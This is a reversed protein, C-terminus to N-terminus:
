FGKVKTTIGKSKQIIYSNKNEFYDPQITQNLYVPEINYSTFINCTPESIRNLFNNKEKILLPIFCAATEYGKYAIDSPKGNTKDGFRQAFREAIANGDKYLATPYYVTKDQYKQQNLERLTEWNPMGMYEIQISDSSPSFSLLQLAWKDELSGSILMNKKTSDLLSQLTSVDISDSFTQTKWNVFPKGNKSQNANNMLAELKDEQNGKKRIYIINYDSCKKRMFQVMARLHNPLTPNLLITFPNQKIGGDNPFTTSLFPIQYNLAIEALQRYDNGSVAGIILDTTDFFHNQELLIINQDASRLDLIHLEVPTETDLSDLALLLGETFDLGPLIHRPMENEYEYEGSSSFSSDLYLQAFVAVRLPRSSSQEQAHLQNALLLCIFFVTSLKM